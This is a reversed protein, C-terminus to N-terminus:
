CIRVSHSGFQFRETVHCAFYERRYNYISSLCEVIEGNIISIYGFPPHLIPLEASAKSPTRPGCPSQGRQGNLEVTRGLLRKRLDVLLAVGRLVVEGALGHPFEADGERGLLARDDADRRRSGPSRTKGAVYSGRPQPQLKRGRM